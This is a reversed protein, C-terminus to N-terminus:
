MYWHNMTAEHQAKNFPDWPQSLLAQQKAPLPTYSALPMPAPDPIAAPAPGGTVVPFSSPTAPASAPTAAISATTAAASAATAATVPTSTATAATSSQLVKHFSAAHATAARRTTTAHNERLSARNLLNGLSVNM